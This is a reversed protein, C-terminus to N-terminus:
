ERRRQIAASDSGRKKEGRMITEDRITTAGSCDTELVAVIKHQLFIASCMGAQRSHPARFYYRGSLGQGSAPGGTRFGM